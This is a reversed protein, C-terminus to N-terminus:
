VAPVLQAVLQALGVGVVGAGVLRAPTQNGAATALVTRVLVMVGLAVAAQIVALGVLYAYLPTPEAGFISEGLAYGHVLGTVAFAACAAAAGIGARWVLLAGLAIVSLAVLAESAPVSLGQLHAVVGLMMAIVYGLVLAPGARHLAALCGIAVVAALHDIGIVPHGLGSLLGQMLTAPLKGGMVHHAQAPAAILLV